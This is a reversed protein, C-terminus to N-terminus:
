FFKIISWNFGGGGVSSGLFFPPLGRDSKGLHGIQWLNFCLHGWPLSPELFSSSTSGVIVVLASSLTSSPLHLELLTIISSYKTISCHWASRRKQHRYFLKSSYDQKYM